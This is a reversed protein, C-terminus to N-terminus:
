ALEYFRRVDTVEQAKRADDWGLETAAIEAAVM